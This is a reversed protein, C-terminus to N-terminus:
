SSASVPPPRTIIDPAEIPQWRPQVTCGLSKTLILAECVHHELSVPVLFVTRGYAISILAVKGYIGTDRDVPWEMDMAVHLEASEGSGSSSSEGNSLDDMISNMRSNVQFVSGLRCIDWDTPIELDELSSSPVPNVGDLLSPFAHELAEKDGRVNDTFVVKVPAHGYKALTSPIEALAPM